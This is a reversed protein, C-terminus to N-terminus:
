HLSTDQWLDTVLTLVKKLMTKKLLLWPTMQSFITKNRGGLVNLKQKRLLLRIVHGTLSGTCYQISTTFSFMKNESSLM